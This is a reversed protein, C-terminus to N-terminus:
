FVYQLHERIKVAHYESVLVTREDPQLVVLANGYTPVPTEPRNIAHNTSATCMPRKKRADKM